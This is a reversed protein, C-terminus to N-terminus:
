QSPELYTHLPIREGLSVVAEPFSTLDLERQLISIAMAHPAHSHLVARVNSRNQYIFLHISLESFGKRSGDVVEGRENAIILDEDRLDGKSMATPTALFRNENLCITANGDHNAVWCKEYLRHSVDIMTKKENAYNMTRTYDSATRKDVPNMM